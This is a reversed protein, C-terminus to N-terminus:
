REVRVVVLTVDDSPERGGRWAAAAAALRELVEHAPGGAANELAAAAGDFGLAAGHADLLEALGDSAFLLTDGPALAARREAYAPGLRGGLPLGGAGIEEVTGSAARWILPPPMAASCVAVARPTVRALALCMHVHAVHMGCLVRDCEALMAALDPEGGLAAFLAKVATVMIGAAVGHGTADGVAVILSGDAGARFDYYDGGVESATTMTVAVDLGAVRPVERPLMSLQLARAAELERGKRVNEAELLRERLEAAHAAREQDLVQASLAEVEALRRELHMSTRAFTRALFLSMTSVSALVGLVYVASFGAVTPVVGFNVLVQLVIFAALVAMGVLLISAGERAVTRRSVEVRVVEGLMAVFYACWVWTASPEGVLAVVPVLAGAALAFAKWSRPFASTRVAYYTLLGLLIAVPPLGAALRNFANQWSPGPTQRSVVDRLVVLAFVGMYLAYFLNERLKPYFWYFALHLLAVFVLVTVLSSLLTLNFRAVSARAALTAESASIALTFGLGAPPEPSGAAPRCAYRVALVHDAQASLTMPWPGHAVPPTEPAAGESWTGARGVLRGDLYVEAAGAATLRAALPVGWLERPVVLHRRFWGEGPWGGRPLGDRLLAPDVPAWGADDCAPSAWGPDDGPHFRWAFTFQVGDPDNFSGADLTVPRPEQGRVAAGWAALAAAALLVRLPRTAARM